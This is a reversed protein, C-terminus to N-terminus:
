RKEIRLTYIFQNFSDKSNKKHIYIKRTEIYTGLRTVPLKKATFRNEKKKTGAAKHCGDCKFRAFCKIVIELYDKLSIQFVFTILLTGVQKQLGNHSYM